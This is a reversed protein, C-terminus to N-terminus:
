GGPLLCQFGAQKFHRDNTFATDIGEDKMVIFSACDVLGWTKDAHDHYMALARRLLDDTVFVVRARTSGRIAELARFFQRRAPSCALGNSTEAIIWDTLVVFSGEHGLSRWRQDAVAHLSDTQNLLAIWGVSDLFVIDSPM